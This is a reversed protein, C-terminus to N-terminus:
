LQSIKVVYSASTPLSAGVSWKVTVGEITAASTLDLADVNKIYVAGLSTGDQFLEVKYYTTAALVSITNIGAENIQAQYVWHGATLATRAAGGSSATMEIASALANTQGAAAQTSSAVTHGQSVITFLTTDYSFSEGSVGSYSTQTSTIAAVIGGVMLVAVLGVGVFRKKWRIAGVHEKKIETRLEDMAGYMTRYLRIKSAASPAPTTPPVGPQIAM